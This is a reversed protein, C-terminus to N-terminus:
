KRVEKRLVKVRQRAKFEEDPFQGASLSLFKEYSDLAPAFQKNRDLLLARFFHHSPKEAGLARLQDLAILADQDREMLILMGALESWADPSDPKAKAVAQFERAANPFRRLDRLARGYAMRLELNGPELAVAREFTAAAKDLQKSQLYAMALAFLNAGTPAKQAAAELEAAAAAGKGEDLLLSGLREKVRPDDPFKQYIEIAKARDGKSEYLGALELLGDRHQPDLAAAREYHAAAEELRNLKALATALAREADASEPEKEIAKQLDAGAGAADGTALKAQGLYYLPRFEAPKAKAASELLPLSEAAKNTRLLLVGLNLQAEYLDPKAKLAARYSTIADDDRELMTLAFARNFHASYDDPDAKAAKEFLDAAAQYRKEELAKIGEAHPDGQLLFLALVVAAPALSMGV